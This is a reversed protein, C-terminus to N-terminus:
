RRIVPTNSQEAYNSPPYDSELLSSFFMNQVGRMMSIIGLLGLFIKSTPITVMLQVEVAHHHQIGYPLLIYIIM